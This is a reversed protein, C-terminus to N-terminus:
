PGAGTSVRAGWPLPGARLGGGKPLTEPAGPTAWVGLIVSKRDKVCQFNGGLVAMSLTNAHQPQDGAQRHLNECASHLWIYTRRCPCCGLSEVLVMRFMMVLPLTATCSGGPAFNPFVRSRSCSNGGGERYVAVRECSASCIIRPLLQRSLSTSRQRLVLRIM